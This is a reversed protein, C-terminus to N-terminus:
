RVFTGRVRKSLLFYPIWILLAFVRLPINAGENAYTTTSTIAPILGMYFHGILILLFIIINLIIAIIPFIRKKGFFVIVTLITLMAIMGNAILDIILITKWYPHYTASDPNTFVGM